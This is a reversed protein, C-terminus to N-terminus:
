REYPLLIGTRSTVQGTAGLTLTGITVPDPDVEILKM